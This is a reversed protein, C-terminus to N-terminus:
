STAGNNAFDGHFRALHQSRDAAAAKPTDWSQKSWQMRNDVKVHWKWVKGIRAVGKFGSTNTERKGQNWQQQSLTAERLNMLRNDTGDGNIHDITKEPWKGYVLAWILHTAYYRVGNISTAIYFGSDAKTRRVCGAESGAVVRKGRNGGGVAVRWILKGTDAEYSLLRRVEEIECRETKSRARPM